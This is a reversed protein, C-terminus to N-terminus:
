QQQDKALRAIELLCRLVSTKYNKYDSGNIQVAVCIRHEPFYLMETMYGPFFGSHGYALGVSTPRIIVGLGYKVDKGLKASVANSLMLNLSSSDFAKLEYLMKGWRALDETTSYIGGGTWEFQPNIIFLGNEDIVKDKGGFVNDNGAYGQALGKLKRGDSPFTKGLQLPRFIRDKVLDYYKKGTVQEIIMGLLIYNTDSYEWGEGAVFSPQEDLIYHLLDEPKWAKGPNATLDKTFQDKFEYRMVGSTHNMIMKVTITAANPIRNYWEYHGLYKSVKEELVIKGEKILQLAIASVYTKGVSGQMLGDSTKLLINKEKDNHGSVFSVTTNDKYVIAVSLGPFNATQRLSDTIEQLRHTQALSLQSLLLSFFLVRPFRLLM